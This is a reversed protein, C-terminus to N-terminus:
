EVTVTTKQTNDAVINGVATRILASEEAITRADFIPMNTSLEISVSVSKDRPDTNAFDFEVSYEPEFSEPMKYSCEISDGMYSIFFSRLFVMETMIQQIINFTDTMSKMYYKLDFEMKIPMRRMEATMGYIHEEHEISFRGRSYPNSLQDTEVTIGKPQVACRPTQTYPYSDSTGPACPDLSAGPGMLEVYMESDGTSLIFHPVKEGRITIYKNIDFLFGKIVTTFFNQQTNINVEGKLIKERLEKEM